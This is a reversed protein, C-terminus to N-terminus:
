YHAKKARDSCSIILYPPKPENLPESVISGEKRGQDNKYLVDCGSGSKELNTKLSAYDINTSLLIETSVQCWLRGNDFPGQETNFCINRKKQSVTPEKLSQVLNTALLNKEKELNQFKREDLYPGVVFYYTIALVAILGGFVLIQKEPSMSHKKKKSIKQKPM